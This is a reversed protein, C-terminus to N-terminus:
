SRGAQHQARKWIASDVARASCGILEAARELAYVSRVAAADTAVPRGIARAVYDLIHTDPKVTDAGFLMRLYQFGALKFGPIDFMLHDGPRAWCAWALLRAPEDAGDFREQADLLAELVGMLMRAKGPSDMDLAHRFFALPSRYERILALLHACTSISQQERMFREIRPAVVTAYPKRLSLVCDIVKSATSGAWDAHNMPDIRKFDARLRDAIARADSEIM